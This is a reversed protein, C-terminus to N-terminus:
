QLLKKTTFIKVVQGDQMLQNIQNQITQELGTIGEEGKLDDATKSSVTRIMIHRIQIMRNQLEEKAKASDGQLQFKLQVFGGSQLNTTLEQTEVTFEVLEEATVAGPLSEVEKQNVMKWLVLVTGALLLISIMMIILIRRM